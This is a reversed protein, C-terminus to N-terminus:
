QSSEKNHHSNMRKHKNLADELSVGNALRYRVTTYEIDKERCWRTLTKWVGNIEYFVSNRKNNNQEVYTAWRCNDKCYGKDNDKRDVSHNKSPRPGMDHYFAEFSEKWEDCMTIGRAGYSPYDPDTKNFCRRKINQWIRYEMTLTMGHSTIAEKNLCGCSRTNRSVLAKASVIITKESSCSCLCEYRPKGCKTNEPHRKIVTLRDFTKGTLDILRPM